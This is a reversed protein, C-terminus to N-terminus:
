ADENSESFAELLKPMWIELNRMIEDPFGDMSPNIIMQRRLMREVLAIVFEGLELTGVTPRRKLSKLSDSIFSGLSNAFQDSLPITIEALEPSRLSSLALQQRLLIFDRNLPLSEIIGSVILELSQPQESDLAIKWMKELHAFLKEYEDQIVCVLLDTKDTFNSYLAGRTFGAQECIEELTTASVGKHAFLQTAAEMLRARTALRKRSLKPAETDSSENQPQKSSSAQQRTQTARKAEGAVAKLKKKLRIKGKSLSLSTDM